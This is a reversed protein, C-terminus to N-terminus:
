RQEHRICLHQRTFYTLFRDSILDDKPSPSTRVTPPPSALPPLTVSRMNSYEYNIEDSCWVLTFLFLLLKYRAFDISSLSWHTLFDSVTTPADPRTKGGTQSGRLKHSILIGVCIVWAIPWALGFVESQVKASVWWWPRMTHRRNCYMTEM